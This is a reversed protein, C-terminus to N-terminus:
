PQFNKCERCVVQFLTKVGCGYRSFTQTYQTHCIYVDIHVTARYFFIYNKGFRVCGRICDSAVLNWYKRLAETM